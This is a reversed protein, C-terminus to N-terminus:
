IFGGRGQVRAVFLLHLFGQVADHLVLGGDCDRVPDLGDLVRVDYVDELLALDYLAAGIRFQQLQPAEEEVQLPARLEDSKIKIRYDVLLRSM